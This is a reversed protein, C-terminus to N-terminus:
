GADRPGRQKGPRDGGERRREGGERRNFGGMRQQILGLAKTIQEPTLLSKVAIVRRTQDKAMQKRIEWVEDIAAMVATEDITAAKLLEAQKKMGEMLRKQTARGEARDGMIEAIKAKQEDSLGLEGSIRPNMVARVIPDFGTNRQEMMFQGPRRGQRRGEARGEAPADAFVSLAAMAAAVIMLKKM